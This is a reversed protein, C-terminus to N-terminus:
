AMLIQGNGSISLTRQVVFFHYWRYSGSTMTANIDYRRESSLDVGDLIGDKEKWQCTPGERWSTIDCRNADYQDKTSIVSGKILPKVIDYEDGESTDVIYESLLNNDLSKQYSVVKADSRNSIDLCAAHSNTNNFCGSYVNLLRAGYSINIPRSFSASTGSSTDSFCWVYPVVLQMSGSQVKSVLASIVSASTEVMLSLRINSLTCAATLAVPATTDAAAENLEFGIKDSGAFRVKMQLSQGFYLVKDMSCLTHAFDSLPISYSVYIPQNVAAQTYNNIDIVNLSNAENALAAGAPIRSGNAALSVGPTSSADVDSPFFNNTRGLARAAAASSSSGRGRNAQLFDEMKTTYPHVLRGYANANQVDVLFQGGQTYLQFSDIMSLAQNHVANFDGSTPTDIHLDFDLTSRALNMCKNPLTFLKEVPSNTNLTVSNTGQPQVRSIRGSSHQAVSASYSLENSVSM